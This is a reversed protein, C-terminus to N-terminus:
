VRVQSMGAQGLFDQLHLPSSGSFGGDLSPLGGGSIPHPNSMQRQATMGSLGGQMQSQQQVLGSLQPIRASLSDNWSGANGSLQSSQGWADLSSGGGALHNALLSAQQPPLGLMSLDTPLQDQAQM